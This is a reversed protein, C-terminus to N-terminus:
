EATGVNDLNDRIAIITAAAAISLLPLVPV